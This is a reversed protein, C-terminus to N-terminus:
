LLCSDEVFKVNNRGYKVRFSLWIKCKVSLLIDFCVFNYYEWKSIIEYKVINWIKKEFVISVIFFFFELVYLLIEDFLGFFM